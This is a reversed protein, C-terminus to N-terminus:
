HQLPRRGLHPLHRDLVGRLRDTDDRGIARKPLYHVVLLYPPPAPLVFGAATEVYGGLSRWGRRTEMHTGAFRVADNSDGVFVLAVVSRTTNKYVETLEDVEVRIGTEERVRPSRM